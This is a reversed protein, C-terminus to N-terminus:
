RHTRANSTGQEQNFQQPELPAYRQISAGRAGGGRRLPVCDRAPAPCRRWRIARAGCPLCAESDTTAAASCSPSHGAM